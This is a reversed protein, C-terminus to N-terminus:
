TEAAARKRNEKYRQKKLKRKRAAREQREQQEAGEAAKGVNTEDSGKGGNLPDGDGVATSGGDRQFVAVFFGDTGDEYPDIRVLKEAGEVSGALGRRKWDPFPDVLRFGRSTADPLVAAVVEENEETHVSCTSYVIRELKPFQLAHQLASKQFEALARVRDNAASSGAGGEESEEEDGGGGASPLLHDGRSLVLGSGSCSPDLIVGRVEAFREDTPDLAMFDRVEAEIVGEAGATKANGVLRKLRVKDRDFAMVKGKGALRAAVHTTKNGPAACCDVCHWGPSPNLAHAPMCSAVSQLILSGNAVLPHDHLDTGEPFLLVDPLLAHISFEAFQHAPDRTPPERLWAQAEELSMRLTNVRAPRPRPACKPAEKLLQAADKVKAKALRRALASKLAAKRSVVAREAGGHPKVGQGILLEYTLVFAAEESLRRFEKLLGVERIVERLLPLYRLTEHTVAYTAKKAQIHPALTLSKISTGGKRSSSSALLQAVADAAQRHVVSAVSWRAGKGKPAATVSVSREGDGFSKGRGRSAGAGGGRGKSGTASDGVLSAKPQKASGWSAGKGNRRM